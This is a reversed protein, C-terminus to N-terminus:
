VRDNFLHLAIKKWTGPTLDEARAKESVGCAALAELVLAKDWLTSLNNALFKRKSSFGTRVVNFFHKEDLQAFFNKSVSDVLLIASDVSPPPSFNGRSVVAIIKPTGYVKVSISLISEKKNGAIIRQAVEKQVLLAMARPQVAAELFQRIIEGTIYYPINAALVYRSVGLSEPTV